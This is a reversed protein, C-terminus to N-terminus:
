FHLIRNAGTGVPLSRRKRRTWRTSISRRIVLSRACFRKLRRGNMVRCVPFVCFCSKRRWSRRRRMPTSRNRRARKPQQLSEVASETLPQAENLLVKPAEDERADIKGTLLVASDETLYAGCQQLSRPFVVLEIAATDDEATVYAMMSGNRTSKLRVATIVCALRVTMGDKYVPRSSEGTLDDIIQKVSAAQAKQTPSRYEDMPHGSLYLGTTEKEMALLERKPVEPINPMAIQTDRVEDNGMGFLDM